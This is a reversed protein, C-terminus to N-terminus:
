INKQITFLQLAATIMMKKGETDMEQYIEKLEMVQLNEEM